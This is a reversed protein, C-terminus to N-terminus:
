CFKNYFYGVLAGFIWGDVFAWIGGIISGVVTPAYGLYYSSLLQVAATGWGFLGAAAGQFVVYIAATIGIALGLKKSELM